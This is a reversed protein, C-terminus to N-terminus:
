RRPYGARWDRCQRVYGALHDAAFGAATWGTALVERRWVYTVCRTGDALTIDTLEYDVDEYADLLTVEDAGLGAVVRGTARQGTEAVLGPYVRDPLAAVRWGDAVAPSLDPVRGLLVDLVEPFMLTGYAFLRM